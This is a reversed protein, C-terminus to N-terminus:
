LGSLFDAMWEADSLDQPPREPEQEVVWHRGGFRIGGPQYAGVALGQALANFVQAAEGKRGGFQLVDGKETILQGIGKASEIRRDPTWDQMELIRLPVAVDLTILLLANRSSAELQERLRRDAEVALPSRPM